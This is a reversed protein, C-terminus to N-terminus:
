KGCSPPTEQSNAKPNGYNYSINYKMEGKMRDVDNNIRKIYDNRFARIDKAFPFEVEFTNLLPIMIHETIQDRRVFEGSQGGSSGGNPQDPNQIQLFKPQSSIPDNKIKNTHRLKYSSTFSLLFTLLFISYLTINKM